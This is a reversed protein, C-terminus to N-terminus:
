HVDVTRPEIELHRVDIRLLHLEAHRDLEREALDVLGAARRVVEPLRRRDALPRRPLRPRRRLRDRVRELSQATTGVSLFNDTIEPREYRVNCCLYRTQGALPSPVLPSKCAGAIAALLGIAM